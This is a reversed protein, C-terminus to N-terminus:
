VRGSHRRAANRAAQTPQPRTTSPRPPEPTLEPSNPQRSDVVRGESDFRSVKVVDGTLDNRPGAPNADTTTRTAQGLEWGSTDGSVVPDYGTLTRSIPEETGSGPELASVTVTTPLRYPLTTAPNIRLQHSNATHRTRTLASGSPAATRSRRMVRPAYSDVLPTGAPTIVTDGAANKIEANYVNVTALEDVRGGAPVAGDIVTRLAREDLERVSNGLEDYDRSTYQWEGAGYTSSNVTYGAADTYQLDAYQWDDAGPAGPLPHDAGFVAFGNTPAVKQNWRAVSAATMDPLGPGSLPVDYVFKGLTATGGAPDGAPRDRKVSDLKERQGVAVYSFQYPAQGAPKISTIADNANYTYETSLNSRPDTVKILPRLHRLQLRRGPGLGDRRWRGQGPQLHGALGREDPLPVLRDGHVQVAVRPLRREDRGVTYHPQVRRLRHGARDAGSDPQGPRRRRLQVDDQERYGTRQHHDAPVTGAQGAAPRHVPELHHRATRRPIPCCRRRVLVPVSLKSGDLETEEDAAIWTGADFTESTRRKRKPSGFVLSTGDGDVLAITGDIPTSDIVRMGAAGADAGDFQAIWGGGFIGDIANTPSSYTSHSRSISLTGSYGPVSVDTAEVNFEGTWLAVQGPGAASTPFGNGFAHPLRQVTTNPTQSWTCQDTSGYRFCVQVDLLVPVRPNLTTKQIGATDPDADLFEDIKANNADWVTSVAVGGAGKDEVTLTAPDENWGVNEDTSGYGSM